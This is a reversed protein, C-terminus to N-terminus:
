SVVSVRESYTITFTYQVNKHLVGFAIRTSSPPGSYLKQLSLLAISDDKHNNPLPDILM